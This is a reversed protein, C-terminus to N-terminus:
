AASRHVGNRRWSHRISSPDRHFYAAVHRSSLDPREQRIRALAKDRAALVHTLVVASRMIRLDVKCEHAVEAAIDAISRGRAEVVDIISFWPKNM